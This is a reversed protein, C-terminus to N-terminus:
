DGMISMIGSLKLVYLDWFSPAIVGFLGCIGVRGLQMCTQSALNMGCSFALGSTSLGHDQVAVFLLHVFLEGKL